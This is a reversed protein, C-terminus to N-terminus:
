SGLSLFRTLQTVPSQSQLKSILYPESGGRLKLNLLMWALEDMM